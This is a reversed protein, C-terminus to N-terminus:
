KGSPNSSPGVNSSGGKTHRGEADPDRCLQLLGEMYLEGLLLHFAFEKEMFSKVAVYMAHTHEMIASLNGFVFKWAAVQECFAQKGGGCWHGHASGENM